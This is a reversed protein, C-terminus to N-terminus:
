DSVPKAVIMGDVPQNEKVNSDPIIKIDTIAGINIDHRPSPMVYGGVTIEGANRALVFKHISELFLRSEEDIGTFESLKGIETWKDHGSLSDQQKMLVNCCM